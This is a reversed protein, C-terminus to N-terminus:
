LNVFENLNRNSIILHDHYKKISKEMLDHYRKIDLEYIDIILIIKRFNPIFFSGHKTRLNNWVFSNTDPLRPISFKYVETEEIEKEQYQDPLCETLSLTQVPNNDYMMIRFSSPHDIFKTHDRHFRVNRHSSWINLRGISKFPFDTYLRDVIDPFLKLFDQQPNTSWIHDEVKNNLFVDVSDFNSMGYDHYAIDSKLKHIIKAKEFYWDVFEPYNYRPIDLPVYCYKGWREIDILEPDYKLQELRRDTFIDKELM